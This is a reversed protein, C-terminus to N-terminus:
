VEETASWCEKRITNGFSDIIVCLTKVRSEARYALESHYAALAADIGDYVYIAQASDNQVIVLYYKM